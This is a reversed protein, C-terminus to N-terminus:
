RLQEADSDLLKGAICQLVHPVCFHREMREAYHKPMRQKVGARRQAKLLAPSHM